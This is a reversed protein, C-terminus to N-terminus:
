EPESGPKLLLAQLEAAPMPRAFLYGQAQHCGYRRLFEVQDPREVGEAIVTFGLTRAMDIVARVIAADSSQGPIGSVFSRDVKLAAVPFRRLYALSSYGTGFDDIAIRMGQDRLAQMTRIAQDPDHMLQSETIELEILRPSVGAAALAAGVRAELGSARFQRASLNVAVPPPAAGAATWARIDLCARALVWEGVAVILGSEELVPVFEAPSVLGRAPHSWRLLAEAGCCRGSALEYKPQYALTFEDRELARRLEAGLQARARSRQNIEATFFQFTNRGAQKARYMAADAAGILAEADAGDGPFVAIGVSATVFMEKGRLEFPAALREILKQAVLAADEQRALDALVVAFEDGSIRAVTDGERVSEKLRAAAQKLLEDGAAHGLTDNVLKFEDLDVFLVGLRTAHRRAQVIMQAFRDSLLARNPLGTLPDFQALFALREESDMRRLGATLVAAVADMFNLEGPKLTRGRTVACLQGRVGRDGRVAVCSAGPAGEAFASPALPAGCAARLVPGGSGPELYGAADAVLAELVQQVAEAILEQADRRELASQGFRAIREQHRLHTAQSERVAELAAQRQLFLALQSGVHEMTRLLRTDLERAGSRSFSLVGLTRGNAALPFVFAGGAMGAHQKDRTRPDASVDSVWLPEGGAWASGSLGEGRRYVRGRMHRLFSQVAPRDVGWAAACRLVDAAADVELYRGCEWGEAECVTRMVQELTAEAGLGETLCRTVAHELRLLAEERKRATINRGVGRYGRFSGDAAFIPEGSVSIWVAEGDDVRCLELDHYTRRADLDAYHAAWDAPTMNVYGLESRRKGIHTARAFASAKDSLSTFRYDADQEWFIDASLQTLSRFRAESDLLAQEAALSERIDRAVSVILWRGGSELARRKAHFPLLSGDRCRYYSRIGSDVGRRAILEDYSREFEARPVDVLDHPGMALLEERAYGLAQCFTRNVDIYRMTARDIVVMMDASEDIAARFRRLEEESQRMWGLTSSQMLALRVLGQLIAGNLARKHLFEYAGARTAAHRLGPDEDQTVAIILGQGAAALRAVTEAGRSDPLNLDAVVLEFSCRSLLELAEALTRAKSLKADAWPIRGLYAGFIEATVRDDELLLVRVARRQPTELMQLKRSAQM